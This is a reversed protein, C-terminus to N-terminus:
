ALLARDAEVEEIASKFQELMRETADLPDDHYPWIFQERTLYCERNKKALISFVRPNIDSRNKFSASVRGGKAEAKEIGVDRMIMRCRMVRFAATVPEPPHGYRDEIESHVEGLTRADRATMLKQYFYLRQAQDRIYQEPILAVVPVELSPLPALSELPDKPESIGAPLTGDVSNKLLQVQENILQTFLEYGVAAM